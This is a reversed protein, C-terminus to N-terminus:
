ALDRRTEEQALPLSMQNDEMDINNVFGAIEDSSGFVLPKDQSVNHKLTVQTRYHTEGRDNEIRTNKLLTSLWRAGRVHVMLDRKWSGRESGHMCREICVARWLHPEEELATAGDPVGSTCLM